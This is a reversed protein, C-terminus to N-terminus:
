AIRWQLVLELDVVPVDALSAVVHRPGQRCFTRVTAAMTDAAKRGAIAGHIDMVAVDSFRRTNMRM